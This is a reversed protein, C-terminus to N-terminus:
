RKQEKDRIHLKMDSLGVAKCWSLVEVVRGYSAVTDGDIRVPVGHERAQAIAARCAERGNVGVNESNVYFNGVSDVGIVLLSERPRVEEAVAAQPLEVPLEREMKKLTTAVLFFILLLFMCDILPAMQVEAGEDDQQTNIRM